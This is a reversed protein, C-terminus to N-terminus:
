SAAIFARSKSGQPRMHDWISSVRLSVGWTTLFGEFMKLLCEDHSNNKIYESKLVVFWKKNTVNIFQHVAPIFKGLVWLLFIDRLQSGGKYRFNFCKEKIHTIAKTWTNQTRSQMSKYKYHGPSCVCGCHPCLMHQQQQQLTQLIFPSVAASVLLGRSVWCQAPWRNRNELLHWVKWDATSGKTCWRGKGSFSLM